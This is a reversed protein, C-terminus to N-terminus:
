FTACARRSLVLVSQQRFKSKYAAVIASVHDRVAEDDPIVLLVVKSRERVVGGGKPDRWHGRGDLVTYGDPFRPSIERAVFRQWRAETVGFRSAINRGFVLEIVVMPKQDRVCGPDQARAPPAGSRGLLVVLLAALVGAHGKSLPTM